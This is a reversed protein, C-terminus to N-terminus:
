TVRSQYSFTTRGFSVSIVATVRSPVKRISSPWTVRGSRSRRRVSLTNPIRDRTWASM